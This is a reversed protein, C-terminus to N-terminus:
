TTAVHQRPPMIRDIGSRAIAVAAILRSRSTTKHYEHAIYPLIGLQSVTEGQGLRFTQYYDRFLDNALTEPLRYNDHDDKEGDFDIYHEKM